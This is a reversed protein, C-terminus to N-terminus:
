QYLCYNKLDWLALYECWYHNRSLTDKLAEDPTRRLPAQFQQIEFLSRAYCIVVAYLAQQLSWDLVCTELYQLQATLASRFSILARSHTGEDFTEQQFPACNDIAMYLAHVADSLKEVLSPRTEDDPFALQLKAIACQINLKVDLDCADEPVGYALIINIIYRLDHLFYLDHIEQPTIRTLIKNPCPKQSVQTLFATKM